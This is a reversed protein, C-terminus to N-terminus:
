IAKYEIFFSAAVKTQCEMSLVTKVHVFVYRFNIRFDNTVNKQDSQYENALSKSIEM